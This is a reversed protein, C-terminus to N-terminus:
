DANGKGFRRQWAKAVCERAEATDPADRGAGLTLLHQGATLTEHASALEEAEGEPLLGERALCALLERTNTRELLAPTDHAHALVAHQVLFELDVLGGQGHKLDDGGAGREGQMRERMATVAGALEVEDRERALAERRVADFGEVLSGGGAIARARVLAQQEWIWAEGLQYERYAALPSVLLGARGNPRLRTDVEYLRGFPGPSTLIHIVRQALRMHFRTADLPREGDTSGAESDFLFVLDLDSDFSLEESGLRGYAIVAFSGERPPEGHVAALDRRALLM